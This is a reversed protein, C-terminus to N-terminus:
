LAQITLSTHHLQQGIIVPRILTVASTCVNSGAPSTYTMQSPLQLTVLLVKYMASAPAKYLPVLVFM